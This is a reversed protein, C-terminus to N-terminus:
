REPRAKSLKEDDISRRPKILKKAFSFVLADINSLAPSHFLITQPLSDNELCSILKESIASIQPPVM